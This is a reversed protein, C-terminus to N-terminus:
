VFESLIMYVAHCYLSCKHIYFIISVHTFVVGQMCHTHAHTCTHTHTTHAHTNRTHTHTYTHTAYTKYLMSDGSHSSQVPLSCQVPLLGEVHTLYIGRSVQQCAITGMGFRKRTHWHPLSFHPIPNSNLIVM